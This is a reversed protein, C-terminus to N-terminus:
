AADAAGDPDGVTYGLKRLRGHIAKLEEPAVPPPLAIKEAEAVEEPKFYWGRHRTGDRFTRDYAMLDSDKKTVKLKLWTESHEEVFIHAAEYREVRLIDEAEKVVQALKPASPPFEAKLDKVEGRVIMRCARKLAELSYEEVAFLYVRASDATINSQASPFAQLMM